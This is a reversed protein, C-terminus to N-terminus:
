LVEFKQLFRNVNRIVQYIYDKDALMIFSKKDLEPTESNLITDIEDKHLSNIMPNILDMVQYEKSVQGESLVIRSYVPKEEMKEGCITIIDDLTLVREVIEPFLKVVGKPGVGAIGDVNDSKDGVIAKYLIFNQPVINYKEKIVSPTYMLKEIPRYVSVKDSVLQLFDKDSSVIVCDKTISKVAYGIADDAEIGSIIVTKVPLMKLYVMVRSLQDLKAAHEKEPNRYLKSNTIRHTSRGKKYSPLIRKKRSTSDPGDFFVLVETPEHKTILSGLSNLFGAMGGIHVGNLNVTDVAAFNRFFLNLGDILLVKEKKVVSGEEISNILDLFDQM